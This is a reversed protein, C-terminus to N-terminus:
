RWAEVGSWTRGDDDSSLTGSWLTSGLVTLQRMAGTDVTTPLVGTDHVLEWEGGELSDLRWLRTHSGGAAEAVDRLVLTGDPTSLVEVQGEVRPDAPYRQEVERWSQGHDDGIFFRMRDEGRAQSWYLLDGDDAALVSGARSNSPFSEILTRTNRVGDAYWWSTLPGDGDPTLRERGWPEIGVAPSVASTDDDPGGSWAEGREYVVGDDYACWTTRYTGSLRCSFWQRPSDAEHDEVAHPLLTWAGNESVQWEGGNAPDVILLVGAAPSHVYFIGATGRPPRRYTTTRWGDTTVALAHFMPRTPSEPYRKPCWTCEATWASVRFDPDDASVGGYALVANDALVVEEPTMSTESEHAPSTGPTADPTADPTVDPTPTPSVPTIPDPLSRDDGASQLVAVGSVVVLVAAAGAGIATLTTLRHRRRAVDRLLPLPPPVVQDGLSRLEDLDPM